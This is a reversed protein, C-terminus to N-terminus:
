DGEHALGVLEASREWLRRELDLDRRARVAPLFRMGPTSTFFKGSVGELSPDTALRLGMRAGQEPRRTLPTHSLAREALSVPWVERTLGTAVRGPCFSNATVGTGELRRALEQTFLINILKTTGYAFLAAVRSRERPEAFRELDLRAPTATPSRPPSWWERRRRRRSCIASSTPSCSRGSTTRRWWRISDTGRRGARTRTSGPM